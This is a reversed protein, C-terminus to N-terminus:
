IPDIDFDILSFQGNELKLYWGKKDWDGLVIREAQTTHLAMAIEPLPHRAPRHTHGHIVIPVQNNIMEQEIAEPTVDLISYDHVERGKSKNRLKQGINHRVRKPLKLFLWQVIPNRVIRRYKQYSEDSTCWIDGHSLLIQTLGVQIRLPDPLLETGSLQSFRKGLLFDRNGHMFYVRIDKTKLQSLKECITIQFHTLLDDGVSVEFFDGLIYLTDKPKVKNDLFQFFARTLDPRGEHLHLDSIFLTSM